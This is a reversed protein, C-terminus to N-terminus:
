QIIQSLFAKMKSNFKLVIMLIIKSRM